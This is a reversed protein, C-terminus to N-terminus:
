RGSRPSGAPMSDPLCRGYSYAIYQLLTPRATAM